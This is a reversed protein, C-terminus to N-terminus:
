PNVFYKRKEESIDKKDMKLEYSVKNVYKKYRKEDEGHIEKWINFLLENWSPANSYRMSLGTGVFLYPLQNFNKVINGIEDNISM